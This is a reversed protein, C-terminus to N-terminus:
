FGNFYRHLRKEYDTYDLSNIDKEVAQCSRVNERRVVNSLPIARTNKVTSSAQM